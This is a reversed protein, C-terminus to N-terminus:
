RRFLLNLLITAVVSVLIMLGIPAYVSVGGGKSQWKLTGPLGTVGLRAMALLVLGSVALVAAAALLLKAASEM